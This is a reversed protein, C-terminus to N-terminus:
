GDGSPVDRPTAPNGEVWPDILVVKGSRTTLKFTSHGLWTLAFGRDLKKM